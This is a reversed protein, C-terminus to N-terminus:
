EFSDLAATTETETTIPMGYMDTEVTVLPATTQQEVADKDRYACQHDGIMTLYGVRDSELEGIVTEALELKYALESWNGLSFWIRGDFEIQIDYKDTMDITTIPVDLGQAIQQALTDFIEEKQPDNSTIIEGPERQTIEFGLITPLNEDADPGNILIKGATSVQLTGSDDTVNFACRSPTIEIVLVDPFEKRIKVSEVFVWADLINQAAEDRDVRMLNDGTHIGSADAIQEATYNSSEGTVEITRINFFVTMSLAVGVFAVMVAVVLGYLPRLRNRRRRRKINTDRRIETKEVDQM